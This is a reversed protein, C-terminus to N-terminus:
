PPDISAPSDIMPSRTGNGCAPCLMNTAYFEEPSGSGRYKSVQLWGCETTQLFRTGDHSWAGDTVRMPTNHQPFWFNQPREWTSMLRLEEKYEVFKGYRDVSPVQFRRDLFTTQPPFLYAELNHM